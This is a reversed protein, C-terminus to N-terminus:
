TLRGAGSTSGRRASISPRSSSSAARRVLREVVHGLGALQEQVVEGQQHRLAEVRRAPPAARRGALEAQRCGRRGEETPFSLQGIEVAQEAVVTRSTVRVPGPPVPLVGPRPPRGLWIARNSSPMWKMSRLPSCAASSAKAATARPSAHPSRPEARSASPEREAM